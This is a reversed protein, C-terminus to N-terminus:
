RPSALLEPMERRSRRYATKTPGGHLLPVDIQEGLGEVEQLGLSTDTRRGEDNVVRGTSERSARVRWDERQIREDNM